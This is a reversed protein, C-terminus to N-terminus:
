AEERVWASELAVGAARLLTALPCRREVEAQVERLRAGDADTRVRVSQRVSTFYPRVGAVGLLGRHDVEGEAVRGVASVTVGKERAVMAILVATCGNLAVLVLELPSTAERGADVALAPLERVTHRSGGRGDATAAVRVTAVTTEAV